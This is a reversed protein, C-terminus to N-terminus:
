DDGATNTFHITNTNPGLNWRVHATIGNETFTICHKGTPSYSLGSSCDDRYYNRGGQLSINSVYYEGLTPPTGRTDDPAQTGAPPSIDLERAYATTPDGNLKLIPFNLVVGHTDTVLACEGPGLPGVAFPGGFNGATRNTRVEFTWTKDSLSDKSGDTIDKCIKIQARKIRNYYDVRVERGLEFDPDGAWPVNVTVSRALLNRSVEADSPTVVIGGNVASDPDLEFDQMGGTANDATETVTHPGVSVLQPESCSNIRVKVPISSDIRFYFYRLALSGEPAFDENPLRRVFKCIELKGQTTNTCTLTNIGAVITVPNTCTTTM